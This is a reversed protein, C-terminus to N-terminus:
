TPWCSRRCAASSGSDPLLALLAAGMVVTPLVFAATLLSALLRRGAFRYRALVYAPALGVVITLRRASSPRGCRSGPSTAVDVRAGSRTASRRAGDARSRAAHRVALRLVRAPVRGARGGARRRAGAAAPEAPSADGDRGDRRDTLAPRHRDVRRDVDRPERRDDAPDLTPRIPPCAHRQRHVGRAAARRHQGPVRVPEAAARGPVDAVLLFDVLQRAESPTSPAACCAPSSSRASARRTSSPRPRRRRDAPRRVDVEAPPSTGYSVVLPKTGDGAGRSGSTTPARDLRRRGRRRQRAPADLLGSGATTASSPSRRWCSRWGPRRRRRTRWSSCTPTPRTPSRRSTPRRTSTTSPSGPWTTTSACTASTSRRRRATPCSRRAARRAGRRARGGDYPEFVDADVVRSLFTNDVGFM